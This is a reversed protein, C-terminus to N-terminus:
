ELVEIRNCYFVLLFLISGVGDVHKKLDERETVDMACLQCDGTVLVGALIYKNRDVSSCASHFKDSPNRTTTVLEGEDIVRHTNYYRIKKNTM